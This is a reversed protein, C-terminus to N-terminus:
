LNNFKIREGLICVKKAHRLILLIDGLAQVGIDKLVDKTLEDLM